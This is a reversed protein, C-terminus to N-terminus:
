AYFVGPTILFIHGKKQYWFRQFNSFFDFCDSRAGKVIDDNCKFVNVMLDPYFQTNIRITDIHRTPSDSYQSREWGDLKRSMKGHKSKTQKETWYWRAVSKLSEDSSSCSWDLIFSFHVRHHVKGKKSNRLKILDILKFPNEM